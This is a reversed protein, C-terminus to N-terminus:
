AVRGIPKLERQDVGREIGVRPVKGGCRAREADIAGIEQAENAAQARAWTAANRASRGRPPVSLRRLGRPPDRGCANGRGHARARGFRDDAVTWLSARNGSSGNADDEDLTAASSRDRRALGRRTSVAHDDALLAAVDAAWRELEDRWLIDAQTRCGFLLAVPPGDPRALEEQLLARFPALGSGTAVFLAPMQEEGERRSLWGHNPGDAEVTAGPALSHLATSTPGGAVRTVAFDVTKNGIPYPASAVSYPRRMVLGRDTPVFLNLSQGARYRLPDGIPEFTLGRVSPSLMRAGVLRLRHRRPTSM